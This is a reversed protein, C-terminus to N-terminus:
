EAADLRSLVYVVVVRGLRVRRREVVRGVKSGGAGVVVALLAVRRAILVHGPDESLV